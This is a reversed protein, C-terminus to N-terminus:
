PEGAGAQLIDPRRVVRVARGLARLTVVASLLPLWLTYLWQPVGLGPSSIEFRYEDITMLTGLVVLAGFVLATVGLALLEARLRGRPGFRDILFGIRIHHDRAVAVSAGLLTMAVMLVIAYEETFALSVNTTYRTVVNAFTILGMVAIAAAALAEEIALPVRPKDPAPASPPTPEAM